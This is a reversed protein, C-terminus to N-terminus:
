LKIIMCGTVLTPQINNHGGGSGFGGDTSTSGTGSTDTEQTLQAGASLTTVVDSGVDTVATSHHLAHLGHTHEPGAHSHGAVVPLEAETLAHFSAGLAKGIENYNGDGGLPVAVRGQADPLTLAKNAAFDAAASAGRGGNVPCWQDTYNDWLLTYLALTDANARESAGSDASGITGGNKRVWGAPATNLCYFIEFGTQHVGLTPLSAGFLTRLYLMLKDLATM